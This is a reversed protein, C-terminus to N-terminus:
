WEKLRKKKSGKKQRKTKKKKIQKTGNKKKRKKFMPSPFNPNIVLHCSELNIIQSKEIAEEGEIM